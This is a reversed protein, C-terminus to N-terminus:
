KPECRGTDQGFVPLILNQGDLGNLKIRLTCLYYNFFNGYAGLRTLAQYTDPLRSLVSDITGAGANLQDTTRRLGTITQAIPKRTDTLMEGLSASARDVSTLARGWDNSDAALREALLSASGLASNLAGDREAVTGLVTNLNTILDGIVADRDALTQTLTATRSLLSEVTSGQGQLVGLLEASFQNVQDPEIARLLPKFSGLLSDLDLAPQTHDLAIPEGAPLPAPEGDADRLELYRDGTLNLYRVTAVTARTPTYSDDITFDVTVTDDDNIAIGTVKGVEVGAVRVFQDVELGSVDSFRASYDHDDFRVNGFVMLVAALILTMVTVFAGLALWRATSMM